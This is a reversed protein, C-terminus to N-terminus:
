KIDDPRITATGAKALMHVKPDELFRLIIKVFQIIGFSWNKQHQQCRLWVSRISDFFTIRFLWNKQHQQCKLWVSRITDFIYYM